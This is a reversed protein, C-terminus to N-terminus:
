PTPSAAVTGTQIDTAEGEDLVEAGHGCCLCAAARLKKGVGLPLEYVGDKLEGKYQEPVYVGDTHELLRGGPAPM